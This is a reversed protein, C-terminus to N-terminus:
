SRKDKKKYNIGSAIDSIIEFPRGQATLYIKMSDIKRELDDKQKDSSM